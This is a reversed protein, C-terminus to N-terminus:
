LVIELVYLDSRGDLQGREAQEPSMSGPTGGSAREGIATVLGFDALKVEGSRSIPPQTTKRVVALTGIASRMRRLLSRAGGVVAIEDYTAEALAEQDVVYDTSANVWTGDIDRYRVWLKKGRAFVGM